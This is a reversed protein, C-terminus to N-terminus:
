GAYYVIVPMGEYINEYLKEAVDLPLNVCGHSGSELFISGGFDGRWPADHLGYGKYFAMWYNVFTSYEFSGDSYRTGHLTRDKEKLYISFAGYPTRYSPDYFTGSVCDSDLVLSGDRYFYVHQDAIDVEIYTGGVNPDLYAINQSYVPERDASEHNMLEEYLLDTEAAEDIIVGYEDCPVEVEGHRTSNFPRTNHVVNTEAALERVYDMTNQSIVVDDIYYFGNDERSIWDKLTGRDLTRTKDGPLRYTVSTGLFDNLYDCQYNLDANDSFVTPAEYINKELTLDVAATRNKVASRIARTVASLDAKTGAVEPVVTFRGDEEFKLFANEPATINESQLEPLAKIMGTLLAEDFVTSLSVTYETKKGLYGFGWMLPNQEELIQFTEGSASYRYAFDAGKIMEIGNRFTVALSYNETSQRLQEEIDEPTLGGADIGNIVTGPLYNTEYQKAANVYFFGGAAAAAALAALGIVLSKRSKLAAAPSFADPATGVPRNESDSM